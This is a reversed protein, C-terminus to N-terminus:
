HPASPAYSALHSTVGYGRATHEVRRWADNAAADLLKLSAANDPNDVPGLTRFGAAQDYALIYNLWASQFAAPCSSTDIAHIGFNFQEPDFHQTKTVDNPNETITYRSSAAEQRAKLVQSIAAAPKSTSCGAVALSLLLVYLRKM